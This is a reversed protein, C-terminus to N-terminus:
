KKKTVIINTPKLLVSASPFQRSAKNYRPVTKDTTKNNVTLSTNKKLCLHQNNMETISYIKSFIILLSASVVYFVLCLHYFNTVSTGTDDNCNFRTNYLKIFMNCSVVGDLM